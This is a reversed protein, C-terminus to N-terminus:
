QRCSWIVKPIRSGNEHVVADDSGTQSGPAIEEVVGVAEHGLVQHDSGDPYGGHNGKLVEHDTGDIGVRLTRVLVEGERLTPTEIDVVQPCTEGRRVVVAKM